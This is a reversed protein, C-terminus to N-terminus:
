QQPSILHGPGSRVFALYATRLQEQAEDVGLPVARGQILVTCTQPLTDGSIAQSVPVPSFAATAAALASDSLYLELEGTLSSHNRVEVPDSRSLYSSGAPSSLFRSLAAVFAAGELQHEFLVRHYNPKEMGASAM